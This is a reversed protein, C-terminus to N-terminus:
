LPLEAVGIKMAPHDETHLFKTHYSTVRVKRVPKQEYEKLVNLNSDLIQMRMM